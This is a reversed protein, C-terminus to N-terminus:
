APFLGLLESNSYYVFCPGGNLKSGHRAVGISLYKWFAYTWVPHTIMTISINYSNNLLIDKAKTFPHCDLHKITCNHIAYIYHQVIMKCLTQVYYYCRTADINYLIYKFRVCIDRWCTFIWCISFVSFAERYYQLVERFILNKM